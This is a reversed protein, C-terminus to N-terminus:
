KIVEEVLKQADNQLDVLHGRAFALAEPTGLSMMALINKMISEDLKHKIYINYLRTGYEQGNGKDIADICDKTLGTASVVVENSDPALIKSAEELSEKKSM